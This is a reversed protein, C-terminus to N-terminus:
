AVRVSVVRAAFKPPLEALIPSRLEEPLILSPEGTRSDVTRRRRQEEAALWGAWVGRVYNAVALARYQPEDAVALGLVPVDPFVPRVLKKKNRRGYEIIAHVIQQQWDSTEEIFDGFESVDLATGVEAPPVTGDTLVVVRNTILARVRASYGDDDNPLVVANTHRVHAGERSTLWVATRDGGESRDVVAFGLM